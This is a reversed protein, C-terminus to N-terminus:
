KPAHFKSNMEEIAENAVIHPKNNISANKLVVDKWFKLDKELRENWTKVPFERAYIAIQELDIKNWGYPNERLYAFVEDVQSPKIVRSMRLCEYFENLIIREVEKVDIDLPEVFSTQKNSDILKYAKIIDRIFKIAKKM